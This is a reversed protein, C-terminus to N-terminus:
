KGGGQKGPESPSRDDVVRVRATFKVAQEGALAGHNWRLSRYERVPVREEIDKGDRRVKRVLPLDAYAAGDTSAKANAPSASDPIFETNVPIPLTAVLNTVSQKGTNRYTAVYEIVDGPRASEAAAFTEKGDAAKTVKRAELRTEVPAPAAKQQAPSALAAFLAAVGLSWVIMKKM